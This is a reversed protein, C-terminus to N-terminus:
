WAPGAGSPPPRSGSIPPSTSSRPRGPPAPRGRAPRGRAPWRRVADLAALRDHAKLRAGPAAREFATWLANARGDPAGRGDPWSGPPPPAQALIIRAHVEAPLLSFLYERGGGKGWRMRCRRGDANWGAREAHEALGSLSGPLAQGAHPLLEALTFWEKLATAAKM